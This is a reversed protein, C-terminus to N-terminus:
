FTFPLPDDWCREESQMMIDPEVAVYQKVARPANNRATENMRPKIWIRLSQFGRSWRNLYEYFDVKWAMAWPEAGSVTTATTHEHKLSYRVLSNLNDSPPKDQHFPQVHVQGPAPWREELERALEQREVAGLCAIGHFTVVWTPTNGQYSPLGMAEAQEKKRPPLDAFREPDFADVELWGVLQFATWARAERRKKDVMNRLKRRSKQFIGGIDEVWDTLELVITVFVLGSNDVDAFAEQLVGVQRAIYKERCKACAVAGCSVVNKFETSKGCSDLRSKLASTTRRGLASRLEETARRARIRVQNAYTSRGRDSEM